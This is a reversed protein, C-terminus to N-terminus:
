RGTMINWEIGQDCVKWETRECFSQRSLDIGSLLAQGGGELQSPVGDTGYEETLDHM